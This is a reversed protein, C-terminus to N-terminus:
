APGHATRRPVLCTVATGGGFPEDVALAAGIQAARYRMIRLGMGRREHVGDQLGRGDDQVTLQLGAREEYLTIRPQHPRGHRLANGVAEQAIRYLQTATAQDLGRLDKSHEFSITLNSQDRVRNVLDELAVRLGDQEVQVPVLGRSLTRVQDHVRALGDVL